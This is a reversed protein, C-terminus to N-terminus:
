NIFIKAQIFGTHLSPSNAIKEFAFYFGWTLFYCPVHLFLSVHEILPIFYIYLFSFFIYLSISIYLNSSLLDRINMKFFSLTSCSYLYVVLHFWSFSTHMFHFYLCPSVIFLVLYIRSSFLVMVSNLFKPILQLSSWLSYLILLSLYTM